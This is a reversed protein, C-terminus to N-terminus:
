GGILVRAKNVSVNSLDADRAADEVVVSERGRFSKGAVGGREGEIVEVGALAERDGVFGGCVGM